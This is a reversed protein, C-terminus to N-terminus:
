HLERDFTSSVSRRDAFDPVHDLLAAGQDAIHQAALGLARRGAAIPRARRWSSLLSTRARSTGRLMLRLRMRCWGALSIGAVVGFQPVDRHWGLATGPRYETVLAHAFEEAPIDLWGAVKDRLPLLFAPLPPAPTLVNSDFDYGSGFSAIRRNATYAKYQAQRLPLGAVAELLEIEEAESVFNPAYRMGEPLQPQFLDTQTTSRPM